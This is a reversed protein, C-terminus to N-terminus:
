YNRINVFLAILKTVANKYVHRKENEDLREEVTIDGLETLLRM